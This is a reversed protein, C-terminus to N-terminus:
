IDHSCSAGVCFQLVAREHLDAKRRWMRTAECFPVASHPTVCHRLQHRLTHVTIVNKKKKHKEVERKKKKDKLFNRWLLQLFVCVRFFFFVCCFFFSSSSEEQPPGESGATWSKEETLRARLKCFTIKRVNWFKGAYIDKNKFLM